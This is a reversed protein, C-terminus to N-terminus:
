FCRPDVNDLQACVPENNRDNIAFTATSGLAVMMTALILLISRRMVDELT